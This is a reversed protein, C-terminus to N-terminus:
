TSFDLFLSPDVYFFDGLAKAQSKSIQRKGNVVESVVGRSGIIGVLDTQRLNRAEMLHLLISQPTTEGLSYHEEEFKEILVVLLNLIKKQELTRDKVALLDEVIALARENEAETTILQPLTEALLNKYVEKDIALTM